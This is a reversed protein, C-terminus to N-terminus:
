PETRSPPNAASLVMVSGRADALSETGLRSFFGPRVLRQRRAAQGNDQTRTSARDMTASLSSTGQATFTSAPVTPLTAAM